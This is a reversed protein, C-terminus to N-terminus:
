YKLNNNDTILKILETGSIINKNENLFRQYQITTKLSLNIIRFLRNRFPLSLFRSQYIINEPQYNLICNM